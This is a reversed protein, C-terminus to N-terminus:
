KLTQYFRKLFDLQGEHEDGQAAKAPCDNRFQLWETLKDKGKITYNCHDMGTLVACSTYSKCLYFWNIQGIYVM